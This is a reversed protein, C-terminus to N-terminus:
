AVGTLENQSPMLQLTAIKIKTLNKESTNNGAANAANLLMLAKHLRRLM